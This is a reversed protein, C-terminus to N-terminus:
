VLNKKNKSYHNFRYRLIDSKVPGFFIMHLQCLFYKFWTTFWGDNEFRRPSSFIKASKLVGFKGFKVGRRIYDLEEGVKIKENFGGVKQHLNNKILIANMAQPLFRETILSPFNYFIRYSLNHFRHFSALTFSAVDLNREKFEKLLKELSGDSLFIDADLFLILSNQAAKAGKNKGKPPFGGPVVKCGFSKAIEITKDESGADAVIIEYNNLGQKKISELLFPLHNEENLTPIIISLM